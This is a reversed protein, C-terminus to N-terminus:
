RGSRYSKIVGKLYSLEERKVIGFPILLLPSGFVLLTRQLFSLDFVYLLSLMAALYVL